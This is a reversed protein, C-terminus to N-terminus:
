SVSIQDHYRRNNRQVRRLPLGSEKDIKSIAWYGDQHETM